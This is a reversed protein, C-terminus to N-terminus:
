RLTSDPEALVVDQAQTLTWGEGLPITQGLIIKIRGDQQFQDVAAQKNRASTSGDMYVLGHRSLRDRLFALVSTHWGSVVLKELGEAILDDIYDAVSPAKAEGLLRRATSIEGDVPIGADFADPDMEYLKEAAAWGPHKLARRMEATIALPFPHWQKAPLEHLVQEKLRRVMLHKRLRFQLDDLNVPKNLVKKSWHLENRMVYQGSKQDFVQHPARVMGEGYTYYTKRFDELSARNIADWNLLRIGNYLEIPQNPSPTGTLMTIRGAVSRVGDEACIARTRTNGKPDKFAHAEDLIVHDWKIDCVANLINMNALLPYSVIVYDHANSVGDSSKYIPYTSVNPKDSWMWIEREWNGRLSAPCVVLTRKAEVANSILVGQCSKGVGPADGILAHDRALAYEVGAHQYLKPARTEHEPYPARYFFPEVARSALVDFDVSTM